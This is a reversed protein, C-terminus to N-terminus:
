PLRMRGSGGPRIHEVTNDFAVKVKILGSAAHVVPSIFVIEGELRVISEGSAIELSTPTGKKLRPGYRAEVHCVMLGQRTDVLRVLPTTLRAGEGVDYGLFDAITGSFPAVVQREKVRAKALELQVNAITHNAEATDMEEQSVSSTRTQLQKLRTLELKTMNFEVERRQQEWTELDNNLELLVAGKEVFTGEPFPLAQIVGDVPASLTADRIPETLGSVWVSEPQAHLHWVMLFVSAYLTALCARSGTGIQKMIM